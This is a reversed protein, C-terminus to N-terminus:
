IIELEIFLPVLFYFAAFIVFVFIIPWFTGRRILLLSFTVISLAGILMVSALTKGYKSIKILSSEKCVPCCYEDEKRLFYLEFYTLNKKCHPCHTLKM